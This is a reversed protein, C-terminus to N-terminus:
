YVISNDCTGAKRKLETHAVSLELDKKSLEIDKMQSQKRLLETGEALDSGSIM